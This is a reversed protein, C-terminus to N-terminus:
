FCCLRHQVSVFVSDIAVAMSFAQDAIITSPLTGSMSKLFTQFLWDFSEIRDNMVFCCGFMVNNPHHNM